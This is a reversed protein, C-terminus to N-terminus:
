TIKMTLCTLFLCTLFEIWIILVSPEVLLICWSTIESHLDEKWYVCYFWVVQSWNDKFEHTIHITGRLNVSQIVSKEMFFTPDSSAELSTVYFITHPCKVWLFTFMLLCSQCRAIGWACSLKKFGCVWKWSKCRSNEQYVHISKM